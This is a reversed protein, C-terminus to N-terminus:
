ILVGQDRGYEQICDWCIGWELCKQIIEYDDSVVEVDRECRSCYMVLTM